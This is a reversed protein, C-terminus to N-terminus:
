NLSIEEKDSWKNTPFILDSINYSVTPLISHSPRILRIWLRDLGEALSHDGFTRWIDSWECVRLCDDPGMNSIIPFSFHSIISPGVICRFKGVHKPTEFIRTENKSTFTNSWKKLANHESKGKRPWCGVSSLKKMKLSIIFMNIMKQGNESMQLANNTHNYSVWCYPSIM